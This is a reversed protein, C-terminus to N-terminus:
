YYVQQGFIVNRKKFFDSKIQWFREIKIVLRSLSTLSQVFEYNELRLKAMSWVKENWLFDKLINVLARDRLVVRVEVESLLEKENEEVKQSSKGQTM